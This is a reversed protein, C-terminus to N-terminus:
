KICIWGKFNLSQFFQSVTKFGIEKLLKLNEGDPLCNMISRLDKEKSLIEDTSFKEQKYDYNAFTFAEQVQGSRSIEKECIILAGNTNLSNYIKSLVQKRDNIKLFQMTFVSISLNNNPIVFSKDTIDKIILQAKQSAYFNSGTIDYGICESDPHLVAIKSILRGSTCGFDLVRENDKIWFEALNCILNDLLIYGHISGSIHDDFNQITDFSFKNM